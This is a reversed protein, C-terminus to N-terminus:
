PFSHTPLGSRFLHQSKPLDLNRNLQFLYYSPLFFLLSSILIIVIEGIECGHWVMGGGSGCNRKWM